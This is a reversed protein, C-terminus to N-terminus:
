IVLGAEVLARQLADTDSPRGASIRLHDDLGPGPPRNVIIGRLRLQEALEDGTSRTARALVFGAWSPMPQVMNLKRLMRFLRSREDRVRRVNALVGPMDDLTALAALAAGASVPRAPERYLRDLARPSGIAWGVPFASLGAWTELTQFVVVNDFERALHAFSRPGFGGCREDVFVWSCSRALRVADQVPLLAGSPDHPSTLVAVARRPLEAATEADLGPLFAATRWVDITEREPHAVLAPRSGAGPPFVVLPGDDAGALATSIAEDIGNAPRVWGAPAGSQAALRRHLVPLLRAPDRHLDDAAALSEAVLPSPGYPNVLLDLRIPPKTTAPAAVDIHARHPRGTM